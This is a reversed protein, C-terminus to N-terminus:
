GLSPWASTDDDKDMGCTGDTCLRLSAHMDLLGENSLTSQGLACLPLVVVDDM